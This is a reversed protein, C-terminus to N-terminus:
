DLLRLMGAHIEAIATRPLPLRGTVALGVMANVLARSLELPSRGAALEGCQQAQRLARELSARLLELTEGLLGSLEEDAPDVEVLSNAVLCGRARQDLALEEFFRLVAKVNGLPSGARELLALAQSLQTSRYHEITRLFLGRKSGFTDYLSQRSIGLHSLLERLGLREYGRLWFLEMAQSLVQKEDFAKPRGAPMRRFM